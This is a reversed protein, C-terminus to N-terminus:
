NGSSTYNIERKAPESTNIQANNKKASGIINKENKSNDVSKNVLNKNSDKNKDGLM